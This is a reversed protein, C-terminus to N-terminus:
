YCKQVVKLNESTFIALIIEQFKVNSVELSDLIWLAWYFSWSNMLKRLIGSEQRGSCDWKLVELPLLLQGKAELFTHVVAVLMSLHLSFSVNTQKWLKPMILYLTSNYEVLIFIIKQFEVYLRWDKVGRYVKFRWYQHTQWEWSQCVHYDGFNM